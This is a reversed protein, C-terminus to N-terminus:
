FYSSAPDCRVAQLALHLLSEDWNDPLQEYSADIMFARMKRKLNKVYAEAQGNAQPRGASIVRISCNFKKALLNAVKNCLEGRDQIICEGPCLYRCYIQQYVFLAVTMAKNDPLAWFTIWNKFGETIMRLTNKFLVHIFFSSKKSKWVILYSKFNSTEFKWNKQFFRTQFEKRGLILM